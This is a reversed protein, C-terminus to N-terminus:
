VIFITYRFFPSTQPHPLPIPTGRWVITHRSQQKYNAHRYVLRRCRVSLTGCVSRFVRYLGIISWRAFQKGCWGVRVGHRRQLRWDIRVRVIKKKEEFSDIWFVFVNAFTKGRKQKNKICVLRSQLSVHRIGDNIEFCFLCFTHSPDIPTKSLSSIRSPSSDSRSQWRARRGKLFPEYRVCGGREIESKVMLDHSARGDRRGM